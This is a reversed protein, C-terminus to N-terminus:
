IAARLVAELDTVDVPKVLHADFGAARSRRRDEDQGWGTLAVLLLDHGQRAARLRRAVELGDMGPMGLDLLVVDPRFSDVARLADTGDAVSQTVHGRLGLLTALTQGADANDDVVLIRRHGAATAQRTDVTEEGVPTHHGSDLPLTVTFTSGEGVGPSDVRVAGGHMEVLTRVLSLGIGLGTAGSGQGQTFMDFIREAMDAAIGRGDDHVSVHARADDMGVHLTVRGGQPTYKAANDLLNTVVQVLRVDDGWVWVPTEPMRLTLTHGGREVASRANEVAHTVVSRLDVRTRRLVVTGRSLRSLDLLDDILRVMHGVQRGIVDRARQLSPDEPGLTNLIEVASRIPALPNRLEHALTALFEDKRRDGERLAEEAVKREHVDIVSGSFGEFAGDAGFRPAGADIAWRYAGDARRIRYDLQFAERRANSELFIRESRRRDDPHVAELWGFGLSEEESQGTFTHWGRSLFVCAGTPDTMWLMAPATHAMVRFRQESEAIARQAERRVSALELQAGVRVVLERASFPKTLYDDAGAEAAGLRAEEGARASLLIVPVDGLDPDARLAALLEFGNLGPMMVDALVLDPRRQRAASLAAEGDAAAEVDFRPSLLETVYARLDANDDAWLVRPRATPGSGRVGRHVESDQEGDSSPAPPLWRLAEEVYGRADDVRPPADTTVLRDPPLHDAGLPISVTFTSGQGERSRVQVQGGHVRALADVLALGIGTGEHSRRRAGEIRHFREFVRPLEADSIGVGTDEVELQVESATEKLRVTIGGEFTFKFANSVLNLVIKEWLDRDVHVPATVPPCDVHLFLGGAEVTSRFVSALDRTLAAIDTREFRADARGAEVRSFSLMTNVLKLLRVSNRHVREVQSRIEPALPGERDDLLDELPGLMLTLPTRFEHSVNSFFTTKARDLEALAQARRQEQQFARAQTIATEVHTALLTAFGGYDDDFVLRPSLGIVLFGDPRSEGTPLLPLVIAREPPEPWVG